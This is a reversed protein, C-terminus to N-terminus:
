EKVPSMSLCFHVHVTYVLLFVTSRLGMHGHSRSLGGLCATHPRVCVCVTMCLQCPWLICSHTVVCMFKFVVHFALSLADTEWSWMRDAWLDMLLDVVHHVHSSNGLMTIRWRSPQTTRAVWTTWPSTAVEVVVEWAMDVTAVVVVSDVEVQFYVLLKLICVM